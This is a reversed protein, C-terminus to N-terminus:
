AAVVRCIGGTAHPRAAIWPLVVHRGARAWREAADLMPGPSLTAIVLADARDPATLEIGNEACLESLAQEVAWSNKGPEITAASGFPRHQWAQALAARAHALGTFRHWVPRPMVTRPQARLTHRLEVLGRGFGALAREKDAIQRYRRRQERLMRRRLDDPAYRQMVWCNNRVLRELILDVDRGAAAKHHHVVFAPDFVIRAGRLLLKAALDYEEAYYGFAPDYGGAAAFADRRIAAGCGIFVEPLGGSERRREAPLHIDAMVAAVERPQRDLRDLFAGFPEHREVPYSDDDLMIVWSAAPSAADVAANRAAAGLNVHLRVVRVPAGSAIAGPACVPEDSANDALIVEASRGLTLKGLADLTASLREPRNRTPIVFSIM